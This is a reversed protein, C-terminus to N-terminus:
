VTVENLAKVMSEYEDQSIHGQYLKKDLMNMRREIFAEHKAEDFEPVIDIFRAVRDLLASFAKIIIERNGSDAVLYSDALSSAFSGHIGSEMSNIISVIQQESYKM